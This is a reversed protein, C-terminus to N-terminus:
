QLAEELLPIYEEINNEILTIFENYDQQKKPCGFMLMKLGASKKYIWGEFDDPTIVIDIMYDNYTYTDTTIIRNYKM